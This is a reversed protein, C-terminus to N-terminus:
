NGPGMKFPSVISPSQPRSNARKQAEQQMSSNHLMQEIHAERSKKMDEFLVGSISATLLNITQGYDDKLEVAGAGDVLTRYALTASEETKFRLAWVTSGMCISLSFM